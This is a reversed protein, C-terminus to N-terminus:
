SSEKKLHQVIEQALADELAPIASERTLNLGQARVAIRSQAGLKQTLRTKPSAHKQPQMHVDALLSWTDTTADNNLAYGTGLGVLLGAGAGWAAGSRGFGAGVGLGLAAGTAASGFGQALSMGTQETNTLGVELITIQLVYDAANATGALSLGVDSQLLAVLLARFSEGADMLSTRDEVSVWVSSQAPVPPLTLPPNADVRAQVGSGACGACCLVCCLVTAAIGRFSALLLQM